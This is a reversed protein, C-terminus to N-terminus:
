RFSRLKSLLQTLVHSIASAGVIIFVAIFITGGFSIAMRTPFNEVFYDISDKSGFYFNNYRPSLFPTIACLLTNVALFSTSKNM